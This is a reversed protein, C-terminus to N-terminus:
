SNTWASYISYKSFNDSLRLRIGSCSECNYHFNWKALVSPDKLQLQLDPYM